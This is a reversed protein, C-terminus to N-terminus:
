TSSRPVNVGHGGVAPWYFVPNISAFAYLNRYDNMKKQVGEISLSARDKDFKHKLHHLCMCSAVCFTCIIVCVHGVDDVIMKAFEDQHSFFFFYRWVYASMCGVTGLVRFMMQVIIWMRFTSLSIEGGDAM